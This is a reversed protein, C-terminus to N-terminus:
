FFKNNRNKISQNKNQSQRKKCRKEKELEIKEEAQRKEEEVKQRANHKEEEAREKAQRKEEDAKEKAIRKEELQAKRSERQSRLAWVAAFPWGIISAQMILAVVAGGPNDELLLILWPFLIAILSMFLRLIM